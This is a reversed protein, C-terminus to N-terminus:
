MRPPSWSETALPAAGVVVDVDVDVLVVVMGVVVVAGEVVLVVVGGLVVAAGAVLVAAAWAAGPGVGGAVSGGEGVM